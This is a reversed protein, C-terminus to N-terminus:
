TLIAKSNALRHTAKSLNYSVPRFMENFFFKLPDYLELACEAHMSNSLNPIPRIIGDFYKQSFSNSM